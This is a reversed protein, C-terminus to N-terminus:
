IIPRRRRTPAPSLVLTSGSANTSNQNLPEIYGLATSGGTLTLTAGSTTFYIDKTILASGINASAGVNLYGTSGNRSGLTITGGSFTYGASSITMNDAYQTGSVTVTGPTGTFGAGGFVANVGNGESNVTSTAPAEDTSPTFIISSTNAITGTAAGSLTVVNGSISVVYTGAPFATTSLFEGPLVNGITAASLTITTAGVAVAGNTVGVGGAPYAADSTGTSFDATTNDWPGTGNSGTGTGAPDFTYNSETQARASDLGAM